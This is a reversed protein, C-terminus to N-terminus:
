DIVSLIIILNDNVLFGSFISLNVIEIGVFSNFNFKKLWYFIM